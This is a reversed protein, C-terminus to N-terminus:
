QIDPPAIIEMDTIEDFFHIEGNKVTQVQVPKIVEGLKNYSTIVGTVADFDHIKYMGDKIADPTAQGSLKIAEALVMFSDYVSAGVMDPAFGYKETYNKIYDQTVKRTDDRNLNTTFVLGEVDKGLVGFFEKTADIGETGLLQVTMNLQKMQRVIQSGEVAYAVMYILDPNENKIKTLLPTFEKEGLQFTDVSIVEGGLKAVREKFGEVLSAGFDNDVQLVAIKKAGLKKVAVEAGARGQIPGVFSQRFIYDGAKTIDPHEAYASVMPIKAQQYVPAAARTPNSYSGSVVAVVKDSTTLKQAISVAQEAKFNDDYDVLEIKKGLIGGANNITEVALKASNLASEGDAAAPGTVPAFFGIKITEEGSPSPQQEQQGSSQTQQPQQNGSCGSMVMLAILLLSIVSFLRKEM